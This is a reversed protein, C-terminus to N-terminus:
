GKASHANAEDTQASHAGAHRGIKLAGPIVHDDVVNPRICAGRVEGRARFPSIAWADDGLFRVDDGALVGEATLGGREIKVLKM